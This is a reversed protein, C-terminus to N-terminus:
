SYRHGGKSPRGRRKPMMAPHAPEPVSVRTQPFPPLVVPKPEPEPEPPATLPNFKLWEPCEILLSNGDVAYQVARSNAQSDNLTYHQLRNAVISFRLPTDDNGKNGASALYGEEFPQVQLFGEDKGVGEYVAVRIRNDVVEWGLTAIVSRSLTFVVSRGKFKVGDALYLGLTVIAGFERIIKRSREVRVFTM